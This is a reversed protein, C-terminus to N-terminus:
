AFPVRIRNARRFAGPLRMSQTRGRAHEYSYIYEYRRSSSYTVASPVIPERNVDTVILCGRDRGQRPLPPPPPPPQNIVPRLSRTVRPRGISGSTLSLRFAEYVSRVYIPVESPPRSRKRYRTRVGDSTRDPNHLIYM